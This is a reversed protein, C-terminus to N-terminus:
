MPISRRSRLQVLYLEPNRLNINNIEQSSLLPDKPHIFIISIPPQIKINNNHIIDLYYVIYMYRLQAYRKILLLKTASQM